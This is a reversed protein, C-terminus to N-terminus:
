ARGLAVARGRRRGHRLLARLWMPALARAVTTATPRWTWSRAQWLPGRGHWLTSLAMTRSNRGAYAAALAVTNRARETRLARRLRAGTAVATVKDLLRSRAQYVAVRDASYHEDHSRVCALPETIVAVESLRILRLWLDYEEFYLQQEDFAGAEEVLRREAVVAPTPVVAELTLLQELIPGAYPVWARTSESTMTDGNMGIRRVACYNWRRSPDRSLAAVQVELKRPLWLDDSDLFAVYQAHAERLAANRVAGPNGRHSRRLVRVRPHRAVAALYALTASDSGDDGIILEWDAFTQAFVSDVAQRLYELRNFTPLIVSVAPTTLTQMTDVGSIM